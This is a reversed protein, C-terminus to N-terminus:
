DVKLVLNKYNGVKLPEQLVIHIMGNEVAQVDAVIVSDNNSSIIKKGRLTFLRNDFNNILIKDRTVLIGNNWNQDTYDYIHIVTKDSVAIDKQFDITKSWAIDSGIIDTYKGLILKSIECKPM